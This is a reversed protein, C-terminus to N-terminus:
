TMLRGQPRCSMWDDSDRAAVGPVSRTYEGTITGTDLRIESQILMHGSCCQPPLFRRRIAMYSETEKIGKCEIIVSDRQRYSFRVGKSIFYELTSCLRILLELRYEVYLTTRKTINSNELTKKNHRQLTTSSLESAKRNEKYVAHTFRL